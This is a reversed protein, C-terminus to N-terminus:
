AIDRRIRVAGAIIVTFAHVLEGFDKDATLSVSQEQNARGLVVDDSIGAEMEAVSPVHHSDQRLRDVIQRDVSEDAFFNM